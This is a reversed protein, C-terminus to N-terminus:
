WTAPLTELGRLTFNPRWVPADQTPLQMDPVRRLLEDFVIEAEIRALQAGLCYHIGGGFSLIPIDKRAVDLEDPRDFVEPDRNVAGLLAVVIEGKDIATGGIETPELATRGVAQVPCEYRLLEEVANPIMAPDDRLRQWQAPNCHLSLLGNGILNVTTEHGAGFLLVVNAHLEDTSLRDGEEEAAVMLSILDDGPEKRRREFLAGFYARMAATGQNARDLEDRTPMGPNLLAGGGAGRDLFRQRHEEPIGLLECIVLMPLPFALDRMADMGGNPIAADLLRTAIGRIRDRLQEVRRAAFAKTVLSRLRTHNPPDRMLMMHSLEVVSPEETATPGFRRRLTEATELDKGFRKDRLLATADAHRTLFVRGVPPPARFVPAHRQLTRYAPYPDALFAPDRFDLNPLANM